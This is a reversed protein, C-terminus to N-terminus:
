ARQGQYFEQVASLMTTLSLAPQSVTKSAAATKPPKIATKKVTMKVTVSTTGMEPIYTSDRRLVM